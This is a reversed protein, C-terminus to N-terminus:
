KFLRTDVLAADIRQVIEAGPGRLDDGQYYCYRHIIMTRCEHLISRLFASAQREVFRGFFFGAVSCVILYVVIV